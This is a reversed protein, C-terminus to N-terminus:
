KVIIEAENEAGTIVRTEANQRTLHLHIHRGGVHMGRLELSNLWPPLTPRELVLCGQEADPQLGLLGGLLAFPAGSAWAQPSCAVPYNIPGYDQRQPFGCFLEPLRGREYYFSSDLLGKLVQGAEHKGGYQALGAGVIGNDHPWISGNHYSMPNYRSAQTSLTRIGWGSYMDERMLREIVRSAKDEPVIGSWLCHGINSSVVDCPRKTGDLALYFADEEEWWFHRLFKAQLEEAVQQWHAADESHNLRAAFFSMARYAAYAYAQVECLAIPHAALEGSSYSISDWSDKWGQNSLGQSSETQYELFGDGDRDGYEQMWRAAAQAHPWL